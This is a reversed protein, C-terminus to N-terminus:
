VMQSLRLVTPESARCMDICSKLKLDATQLLRKQMTQDMIGCVIHDPILSDKLTGFNCTKALLHLQSVYGDISEIDHQNHKNFIWHEYMENTGGLCFKEFAELIYEVDVRQADTLELGDYVHLADKGMCRILSAGRQEAPQRDLMSAVEYNTWIRRLLKFNAALNGTLQLPPPFSIHSLVAPPDPM